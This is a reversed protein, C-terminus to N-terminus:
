YNNKAFLFHLGSVYSDYWRERLDRSAYLM